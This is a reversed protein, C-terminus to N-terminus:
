MRNARVRQDDIRGGGLRGLDQHRVRRAFRKRRDFGRIVDVPEETMQSALRNKLSIM